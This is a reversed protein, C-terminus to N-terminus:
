GPQSLKPSTKTQRAKSASEPPPEVVEEEEKVVSDEEEEEGIEDVTLFHHEMDVLSDEEDDDAHVEDLTLLPQETSNEEDLDQPPVDAVEPNEKRDPDASSDGEKNEMKQTLWKDPDSPEPPSTQEEDEGSIEDLTLLQDKDPITSSGSPMASANPEEDDSVEDLTMLVNPQATKPEEVKTVKDDAHVEDEKMPSPVAEDKTSEPTTTNDEEDGIEDLTVFSLEQTDGSAEKAKKTDSAAPHSEKRKGGRKPTSMM